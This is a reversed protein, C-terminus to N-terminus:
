AKPVCSMVRDTTPRSMGIISPNTSNLVNTKTTRLRMTSMTEERGLVDRVQIDLKPGYFAAEGRAEEFPLGLETLAERLVREGMEWMADNQVYKETDSKVPDILLAEGGKRAAILYSYTSSEPEFFQRFIM